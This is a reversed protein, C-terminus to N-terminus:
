EYFKTFFCVCIENIFGKLSIKNDYKVNDYYIHCELGVGQDLGIYEKMFSIIM